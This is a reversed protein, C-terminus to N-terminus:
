RDTTERLLAALEARVSDQQPRLASDPDSRLVLYHRYARAAGARDGTLAALRGEERLYTVYPPFHGLGYVRRRVAALAGPIDGRREHERAAILNGFAAWGQRTPNLLLSDLAALASPDRSLQVQLFLACARAPEVRWASDPPSPATRLDAAVRAALQRNGSAMAYEGAAFRAWLESEDLSVPRRLRSQLLVGARHAQVSDGGAFVADLVAASLWDPDSFDIAPGRLPHGRVVEFQHWFLAFQERESETAARTYARSFTESTGRMVLPEAMAYLFLWIPGVTLVSDNALAADIGATDGLLAATHWRRAAVDPSASDNRELLQFGRRIGATDGLGAALETLHELAPAFSSDLALARDFAQKAHPLADPLGVLPGFHFLEDGLRYWAAPSDPALEVLREASKIYDRRGTPAPYRKGIYVELLARDRPALRDRYRWAVALQQDSFGGFWELARAYGLGALAFTSDQALAEQFKQAAARYAGQRLATEGDLYSRLSPLSTSTLSVLRAQGERAGLALLKIALLDVLQPVSDPSGEVAAQALSHGNSADLISANLTVHGRTGVIDGQLLRGAGVSVAARAAADAPLDANGNGARRWAALVTRPDVPRLDTTGGLKAALLDVMGERLYALSSDAGTVRFPAIAVARADTAVPASRNHRSALTAVIALAMVGGAVAWRGRHSPRSMPIPVTGQGPTMAADLAALVEEARQPRDAARKALLRRVLAALAPPVQRRRELPVPEETAHAAALAQPSRGVFPAQGALMEYAVVGLAYLDVRHDAGPDALSQEPAMYAPTGLAIGISTLTGGESAASVAKAIGFDTVVAQGDEILVNEPKIDRHVIGQRHAYGLARAIGRVIEIADAVPLEAERALRARLSEGTVYPMTYYLLSGASVLAEGASFVPVIHPHQLGAAVQIERRFRDASVGRALEPAVVKIVVRRGLAQDTALFVRSMGGGGLEREITFAGALAAQLDGGLTDAM